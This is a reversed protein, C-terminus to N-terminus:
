KTTYTLCDPLLCLEGPFRPSLQFPCNCGGKRCGAKEEMQGREREKGTAKGKQEEHDWSLGRILYWM